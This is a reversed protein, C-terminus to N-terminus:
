LIDPPQGALMKLSYLLLAGGVAALVWGTRLLGAASEGKGAIYDACPQDALKELGRGFFCPLSACAPDRELKLLEGLLEPSLKVGPAQRLYQILEDIRRPFGLASVTEGQLIARETRRRELSEDLTLEAKGLDLSDGAPLVLASGTPDDVFFAGYFNDAVREWRGRGASRHGRGVEFRYEEVQEHYFVCDAKSLPSQMKVPSRAKGSIFQREGPVLANLYRCPVAGMAGASSRRSYGVGALVLGALLLAAGILAIEM